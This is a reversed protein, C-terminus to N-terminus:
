RPRTEADCLHQSSQSTECAGGWTGAEQEVSERITDAAFM